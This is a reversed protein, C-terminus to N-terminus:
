VGSLMAVVQETFAYPPTRRGGWSSTAFQSKLTLFESESLRFMFDKPFRKMNRKVSENLRKTEVDYLDALDSGLMVKMGRIFYIKNAIIEDPIM